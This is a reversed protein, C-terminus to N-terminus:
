KHRPIAYVNIARDTFVNQHKDRGKYPGERALVDIVANLGFGRAAEVDNLFKNSRQAPDLPQAEFGAIFAEAEDPLDDRYGHWKKGDNTIFGLKGDLFQEGHTFEHALKQVDTLAGYESSNGKLNVYLDGPHGAYTLEGSSADTPNEKVVHFTIDSKQLREYQAQLKQGEARDKSHKSNLLGKIHNEYKRQAETRAEAEDKKKKKKESDEWSVTMGTPDTLVLPNNWAYSYANLSQPNWCSGAVPDVSAFRGQMSAYYRAGFYDLGTENDREKQTFHQRVGDIASYGQAQTRGDTGAFLEEGFPLKFVCRSRM